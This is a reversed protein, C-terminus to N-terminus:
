KLRIVKKWDSCAPTEIRVFYIGGPCFKGCEDQGDWRTSHRGASENKNVLTRVVNGAVDYIKLSVHGDFQLQYSISTNSNFPNPNSQCLGSGSPLNATQEDEVGVGYTYSAYVAYQNAELERIWTVWIREGDFTMKPKSDLTPHTDISAPVAWNNGDWFSYEIDDDAGTWTLWVNGKNDSAIALADDGWAASGSVFIPESWISNNFYSAYVRWNEVSDCGLWAAWVMGSTDVTMAPGLTYHSHPFGAIMMTDSWGTGDNFSVCIGRDPCSFRYWGVWVRGQTDTTMSYTFEEPSGPYSILVPSGWQGAIYANSWVHHGDGPGKGAWCVWLNGSDDGSAIPYHCCTGQTPVAMLNSWFNGNYFCASIAYGGEDSVVWVNGIADTALNCNEFQSFPYITDSGSWITDSYHSVYINYATPNYTEAVWGCWPKGSSDTTLGQSFVIYSGTVDPSIREPISWTQSFLPCISLLVYVTISKYLMQKLM